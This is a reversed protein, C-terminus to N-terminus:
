TTYADCQQQGLIPFSDRRNTLAPEPFQFPDGTVHM